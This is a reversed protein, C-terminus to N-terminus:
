GGRSALYHDRVGAFPQDEPMIGFSWDEHLKELALNYNTHSPVCYACNSRTLSSRWSLSGAWLSHFQDRLRECSAFDSLGGIPQKLARLKQSGPNAADSCPHLEGYPGVTLMRGRIAVWCHISQLKETGAADGQTLLRDDVVVDLPAFYGARIKALLGDFFMRVQPANGRFEEKDGFCTEVEKIDCFDLEAARARLLFEEVNRYTFNSVLFSAGIRVRAGAQKKAAILAAVNQWLVDFLEPGRGKYQSWALADAADISFRVKNLSEALVGLEVPSWDKPFIGNTYLAIEAKPSQKRLRAMAALSLESLTPEGGGGFSFSNVGMDLFLDQIMGMKKMDLPAGLKPYALFHWDGNSDSQINPCARCRLNCVLAPHFEVHCPLCVEGRFLATLTAANEPLLERRLFSVRRRLPSDFTWADQVKPMNRLIRYIRLLDDRTVRFDEALERSSRTPESFLARAVGLALALDGDSLGIDFAAADRRLCDLLLREDEGGGGQAEPVLAAQFSKMM